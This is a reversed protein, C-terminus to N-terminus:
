PCVQASPAASGGSQTREARHARTAARIAPQRAAPRPADEPREPPLDHWDEPDELADEKDPDEIPLSHDYTFLEHIYRQCHRESRDAIAAAEALNLGLVYYAECFLAMPVPLAHLYLRAKRQATEAEAAAQAASEKVREVTCMWTLQQSGAGSTQVRPVDYRVGKLSLEEVRQAQEALRAARQVAMRSTFFADARARPNMLMM